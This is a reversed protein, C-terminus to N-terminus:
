SATTWKWWSVDQEMWLWLAIIDMLIPLSGEGMDHPTLPAPYWSSDLQPWSSAQVQVTSADSAQLLINPGVGTM